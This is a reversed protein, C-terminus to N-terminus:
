DTLMCEGDEGHDHDEHGTVEWSEWPDEMQQLVEPLDLEIDDEDIISEEDEDEQTERQKRSKKHKSKKQKAREEERRRRREEQAAKLARIEAIKAARASALEVMGEKVAAWEEDTVLCADLLRILEEKPVAVGAVASSLDGIFVLEQRRDGVLEAEEADGGCDEATAFVKKWEESEAVDMDAGDKAEPEEDATGPPMSAYWAQTPKVSLITGAQAWEGMMDPRTALWFFGKSRFVNAFVSEKKAALRERIVREQLRKDDEDGKSAEVGDSKPATAGADDGSDMHSDGEEDSEEDSEEGDAEEEAEHGYELVMFYRVVLDFLRKPHFPRRRRYIFSSIGYEETEPVHREQLSLLWGPSNAAKEYDFSKTNLVKQLPVQSFNTPIIEANPNLRRLLGIAKQLTEPAVCDKKNLIIVNSFEIQDVLLDVVTRDPNAVDAVTVAAENDESEEAGETADRKGEDAFEEDIFKSNEFYGFISTADVVTVCTDLRAVSELSTLGNPAAQNKFDESTLVFTEAVQMPESIGTSEIIIYDFKGSKSINTIEVLLDERLTCCICGNQMAIMKEDRQLIESQSVLAADINLSAMDNVIVACRLNEKNRLIHQLLTTKGAGLFGSLLSVPIIKNEKDSESM